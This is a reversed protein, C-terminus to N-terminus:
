EPNYYTLRYMLNLQVPAGNCVTQPNTLLEKGLVKIRLGSNVSISVSGGRKKDYSM